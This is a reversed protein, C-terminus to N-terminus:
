NKKEGSQFIRAFGLNCTERIAEPTLNRAPVIRSAARIPDSVTGFLSAVAGEVTRVGNVHLEHRINTAWEQRLEDIRTAFTEITDHIYLMDKAREDRNRRGHILVKQALFSVPNAIQVRAENAVPFGNKASLTLSWPAALLVEVYRLNQSSVGGVRQTAKRRGRRTVASGALPTLFEAYFEIGPDTLRYHAAPPKHHGLFEPEFGNTALRQYIEDGTVKLRRPLAVDADLTALPEYPPRGALPHLRYLRHGWGGIIVVQELWPRLSEVLRAFSAYEPNANV